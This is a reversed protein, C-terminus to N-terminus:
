LPTSVRTLGWTARSFMVVSRGPAWLRDPRRPRDAVAGKAESLLRSPEMVRLPSM